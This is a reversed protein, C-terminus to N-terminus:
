VRVKPPRGRKRRIPVTTVLSPDYAQLVPDVPVGIDTEGEDDDEDPAETVPTVPPESSVVIVKPTPLPDEIPTWKGAEVEARAALASGGKFHVRVYDVDTVVAEPPAAATPDEVAEWTGRAFDERSVLATGGKFKVRVYETPQQPM